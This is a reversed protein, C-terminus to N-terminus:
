GAIFYIIIIRANSIYNIAKKEIAKEVRFEKLNTKQQKNEHVIRIKKGNLDEIVYTCQVTNKVKELLLFKKLATEFHM